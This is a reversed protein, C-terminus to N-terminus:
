RVGVNMDDTTCSGAKDVSGSFKASIKILVALNNIIITRSNDFVVSSMADTYFLIFHKKSNGVDAIVPV